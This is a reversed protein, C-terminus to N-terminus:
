GPRSTVESLFMSQAEGLLRELSLERADNWLETFRDDGLGFRLEGVSSRIETLEPIPASARTEDRLRDAAALMVVAQENRGARHALLGLGEFCETVGALDGMDYRRRLSAQLLSV